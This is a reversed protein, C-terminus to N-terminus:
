NSRRLSVGHMAMALTVISNSPSPRVWLIFVGQGHNHHTSRMKELACLVKPARSDLYRCNANNILSRKYM